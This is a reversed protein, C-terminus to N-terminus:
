RLGDRVRNVEVMSRYDANYVCIVHRFDLDEEDRTSIKASIRLTGALTSKVVRGWLNDVEDSSIFVLWKGSLNFQEALKDVELLTSLGEACIKHWESSLNDLDPVKDELKASQHNHVCIWAVQTNLTKSSAM